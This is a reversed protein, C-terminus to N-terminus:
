PERRKRAQATPMSRALYDLDEFDRRRASDNLDIGSRLGGGAKSVPPLVRKKAKERELERLIPRKTM